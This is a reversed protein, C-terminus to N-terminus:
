GFLNKKRVFRGAKGKTYESSYDPFVGSSKGISLKPPYKANQIMKEGPTGVRCVLCIGGIVGGGCYKCSEM